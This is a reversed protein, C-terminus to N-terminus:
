GFRRAIFEVALGDPIRYGGPTRRAYLTGKAIMRRVAQPSIKASAAVQEVTWGAAQEHSPLESPQRKGVQARKLDIADEIEPTFQSPAFQARLENQSSEIGLAECISFRVRQEAYTWLDGRNPRWKTAAIEALTAVGIAIMEPMDLALRVGHPRSFTAQIFRIAKHRAELLAAYHPFSREVSPAAM